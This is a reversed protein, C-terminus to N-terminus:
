TQSFEQFSGVLLKGELLEAAKLVLADDGYQGVVQIGVLDPKKPKQTDDTVYVPVSVAPLGALSAPVTFVDNVYANLPSSMSGPGMLSSLQPPPSPSTPCVIVDVDAQEPNKRAKHESRAVLPHEAKFIANFDHQVLRRVRQAQIFYNDIADASLSFTGLLIRRKVEPGFLEGRTRAYVYGDPQNESDYDEYRNGYRVGDYKALNSSAEAPALVYYASLALRTVPLSVPHITHGQKRLHELSLLWAHRVSPALETINYEIPIGIRLPSSAGRSALPPRQLNSLIRSRSLYSLSTPDRPDPKNLISFIDRVGSINKGLIGVTDLSNAYAVVGWRSILGYSPKFGVTGTYAAPLRVSGGTDTGLAAYCQGAAVAVASGGSSGGASLYEGRDQRPNRVAGFRSNISHSGM